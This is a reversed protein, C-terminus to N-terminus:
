PPLGAKLLGDRLHERDSDRELLTDRRVFDATSFGPRLHLVQAAAAEAEAVRELQAYCAALRALSWPGPSPIRKLAQAAEAYRRLSYLAIGLHANYWPPHFPNLRVATEVWGLAEESHGRMALLRGKQLM